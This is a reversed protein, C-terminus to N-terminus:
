IDAVLAAQSTQMLTKLADPSAATQQMRGIAISNEVVLRCREFRREMFAEFADEVSPTSALLESLVLADEVAIGAGSALHPTTAHAADGILIIRGKYWPRPLLVAELPRANIEEGQGLGDRLRGLDGGFPAMIAKLRDALDSEDLWIREHRAELLWMYMRTESVPMLGATVPGAMYFHPRDIHAPRDAVVRWCYQGTYAPEPADPFLRKRTTSFVGDAAVVLEYRRAEGDSTSVTV